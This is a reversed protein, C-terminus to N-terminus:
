KRPPGNDRWVLVALIAFGVAAIASGWMPVDFGNITVPWAQLFRVAQVIAIVGFLPAALYRSVSM